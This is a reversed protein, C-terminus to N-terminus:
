DVPTVASSGITEGIVDLADVRVVDFAGDIIAETEFGERPVTRVVELEDESPGAWVRWRRVQTAGNWSVSVRTSRNDARADVVPPVFPAGSWEVLEAGSSRLSAPFVLHRVIEGSPAFETIAGQEGWTVLSNGNPLVQHSGAGPSSWGFPHPFSEAVSATRDVENIDLVLGRSEPPAAPEEDADEAEELQEATLGRHADRAAGDFVSLRGGPLLRADRPWDFEADGEVVFDSAKGGLRWALEGSDRDIRYIAGTNHGTILVDGDDAVSLGVIGLYDWPEAPDEPAAVESDAAPIHELADWQFLVAGNQLSIEQLVATRMAREVGDIVTEVVPTAILWATGNATIQMDRPAATLGNAARVFRTEGYNAGLVVFEGGNSTGRWYTLVPQGDLQQVKPARIEADEPAPLFWIPEGKGSALLAGPQAMDTDDASNEDASNEDASGEDDSDGDSNAGGEAVRAPPEISLLLSGPTASELFLMPAVVPPRLQPATIYTRSGVDLTAPFVPAEDAKFCGALLTVSACAAVIRALRYRM